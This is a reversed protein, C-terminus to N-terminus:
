IRVKHWVLMEGEGRNNWLFYPVAKLRVKTERFIPSGYLVNEQLGENSLRTGEYNITPIEGILDLPEGERLKSDASVYISALNKGNDLEELCYVCPGKMLAVKGVDARVNDNASILRPKVDFDIEILNIDTGIGQFCAYSKDIQFDTDTGNQLARIHGAYEPIRIKVSFGAASPSQVHVRIKGNQLLTSELKISIDADGIQAEATSSIFQNIYIAENDRAYIYQGLSALTRALNPPCCAVSFWRQRVPKVHLMYSRDTCFEPVVELPNVYFYQDGTLSLGALVTNYLAREVTDYYVADKTLANMRHGFMMLGISACTESYNTNNPLDYDTTFRELLGSTGISGTVYMRKQTINNWLANYAETLEADNCELALDAMASYMYTARVAHGEATRQKVPPMHAQSYRLDYNDFEHFCLRVMPIMVSSIVTNM